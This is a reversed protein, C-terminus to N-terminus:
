SYLSLYHLTAWFSRMVKRGDAQVFTAIFFSGIRNGTIALKSITRLMKQNQLATDLVSHFSSWICSFANQIKNM